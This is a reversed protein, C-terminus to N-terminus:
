NRMLLLRLEWWEPDTEMEVTVIQVTETFIIGKVVMEKFM